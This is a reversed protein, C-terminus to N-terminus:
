VRWRRVRFSRPRMWEERTARLLEYVRYPRWFINLGILPKRLPSYPSSLTKITTKWTNPRIQPIRNM